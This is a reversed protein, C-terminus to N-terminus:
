LPRVWFAMPSSCDDFGLSRYLAQARANDHRVELSVACCGIERAHEVVAALLQRGIGRGRQAPNVALDHLNLRPRAQFTSFGLMCVAVGVVENAEVAILTVNAGHQQLGPIIAAKIGADLAQGGGMPDRAYSDLCEVIGAAHLPNALDAILIQTM